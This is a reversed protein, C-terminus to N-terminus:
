CLLFLMCFTGGIFSLISISLSLIYLYFLPLKLMLTSNIFLGAAPYNPYVFQTIFISDSDQASVILFLALLLNSKYNETKITLLFSALLLSVFVILLSIIEILSLEM